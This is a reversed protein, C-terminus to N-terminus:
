RGIKASVSRLKEEEVETWEQQDEGESYISSSVSSLSSNRRMIRRRGLNGIPDVLSSSSYLPNWHHNCPPTSPPTSPGFSSSSESDNSADSSSSTSHSPTSQSSSPSISIPDAPLSLHLSSRRRTSPLSSM